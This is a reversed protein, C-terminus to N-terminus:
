LFSPKLVPGEEMNVLTSFILPTDAAHPPRQDRSTEDAEGPKLCMFNCIMQRDWVILVLYEAENM